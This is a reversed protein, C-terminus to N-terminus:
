EAATKGELKKAEKETLDVIMTNGEELDSSVIANGYEYLLNQYDKKTEAVVVYEERVNAANVVNVPVNCLTTTLLSTLGWALAKNMRKM